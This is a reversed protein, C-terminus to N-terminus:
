DGDCGGVHYITTDDYWRRPEEANYHPDGPLSFFYTIEPPMFKGDRLGNFSKSWCSLRFPTDLTFADIWYNPDTTHMMHSPNSAFSKCDEIPLAAYVGRRVVRALGRVVAPIDRTHELTQVTLGWDVANDPMDINELEGQIFSVGPYYAAGQAVRDPLLEYCYVPSGTAEKIAYAATGDNGGFDCFSHGPEYRETHKLYELM